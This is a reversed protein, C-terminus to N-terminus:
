YAPVHSNKNRLASTPIVPAQIYSIPNPKLPFYNNRGLKSPKGSYFLWLVTTFIDGSYVSQFVGYSCPNSKFM